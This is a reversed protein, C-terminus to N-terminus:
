DTSPLIGGRSPLPRRMLSGVIWAALLALIGAVVFVLVFGDVLAQRVLPEIISRIGEPAVELAGPLDGAVARSTLEALQGSSLQYGSLQAGVLRQTHASLLGGLVGISLVIASFRMTTSIGSAMGTRERPVCAMINKQTDGNLIGAGSGTVAMALAFFVHSGSWAALGCLINGAGVVALGLSMLCAPSYRLALRAGVKPFLVMAIAFPLMSLGSVITSAGVGNQFFLPLLTMMVQAFAAYAFMGLLAGIFRPQRFLWLDIMPRKQLHEVVVFLAMLLLGAVLRAITATAQWGIQNADILAWIICLLSAGFVLSGQPDLRAAQPDRSPEIYRVVMFALVLGIPVNVYFIWRWGFASAVLGGFTPAVTMAVGMCGGWFAWARAREAESHFRHGIAALASTLLLAAGVGKIARAINLFTSNPAAGCAISAVVFLALGFLLTGKRGYRDAISGAPLLCCAFALMYASVVWEIDVFTADLDRAISPLSVAVVNTDLMILSCVASATILTFVPNNNSM